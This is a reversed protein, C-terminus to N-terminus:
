NRQKLHANLVDLSNRRALDQLEVSWPQHWDGPLYEQPPYVLFKEKSGTSM